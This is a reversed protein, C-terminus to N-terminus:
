NRSPIKRTITSYLLINYVENLSNSSKNEEDQSLDQIPKFGFMETLEVPSQISKTKATKHPNSEEKSLSEDQDTIFIETIFFM